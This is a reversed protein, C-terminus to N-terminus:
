RRPSATLVHDRVIAGCRALASAAREFGRAMDGLVHLHHFDGPGRLLCETLVRKKASAKRSSDVLRDIAVLFRDVESGPSMASLDRGEDLCRGYERVTDNVLDALSVLLAITQRDITQPLLTVLFAAEELADAAGDAETLLGPLERDLRRSAHAVIHDAQASLRQAL